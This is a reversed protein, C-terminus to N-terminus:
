PSILVGTHLARLNPQTFESQKTLTENEYLRTYKDGSSNNIEVVFPM